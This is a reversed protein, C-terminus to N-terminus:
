QKRNADLDLAGLFPPFNVELTQSDMATIWVGDKSGPSSDIRFNLLVNGVSSSLITVIKGIIDPLSSTTVSFASLIDGIPIALNGPKSSDLGLIVSGADKIIQQSVEFSQQVAATTFSSGFFRQSSCTIVTASPNGSVLLHDILNSQQIYDSWAGDVNSNDDLVRVPPNSM